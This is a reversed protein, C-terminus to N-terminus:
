IKTPCINVVCPEGSIAMDNESILAYRLHKKTKEYPDSCSMDKSSMNEVRGKNPSHGALVSHLIDGVIGPTVLFCWFNMNSYQTTEWFDYKFIPCKFCIEIQM